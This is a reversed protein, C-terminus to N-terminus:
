NSGQFKLHDTFSHGCTTLKMLWHGSFGYVAEEEEGRQDVMVQHDILSQNIPNVIHLWLKPDEDSM